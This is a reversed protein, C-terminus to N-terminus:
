QILVEKFLVDNIKVPKAAENVRAGRHHQVEHLGAARDPHVLGQPAEAAEGGDGGARRALSPTLMRRRFRAEEQRVEKAIKPATKPRVSLRSPGIATYTNGQSPNSARSTTSPLAM